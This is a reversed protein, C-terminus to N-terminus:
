SIEAFRRWYNRVGRAGSGSTRVHLSGPLLAVVRAGCSQWTRFAGSRSPPLWCPRSARLALVKAAGCLPSLQCMSSVMCIEASARGCMVIFRSTFVMFFLLLVGGLLVGGRGIVGDMGVVMSNVVEQSPSSDDATAKECNLRGDDDNGMRTAAERSGVRGMGIRDAGSSRQSLRSSSAVLAAWNSKM